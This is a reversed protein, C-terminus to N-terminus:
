IVKLMFKEADEQTKFDQYKYCFKDDKLDKRVVEVIYKYETNEKELKCVRAVSLCDIVRESLEVLGKDEFPTEMPYLKKFAGTSKSTTNKM